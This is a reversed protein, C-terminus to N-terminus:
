IMKEIKEREIYLYKWLLKKILVTFKNQDITKSM